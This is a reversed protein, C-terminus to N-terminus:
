QRGEMIRVRGNRLDEEVCPQLGTDLRAGTRGPNRAIRSWGYDVAAAAYWDRAEPELRKDLISRVDGWPLAPCADAFSGM